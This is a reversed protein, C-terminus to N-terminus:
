EVPAMKHRHSPASPLRLHMFDLTVKERLDGWQRGATVQASPLMLYYCWSAILIIHKDSMGHVRLRVTYSVSVLYLRHVSPLYVAGLYEDTKQSCCHLVQISGNSLQSPFVPQFPHPLVPYYLSKLFLFSFRSIDLRRGYFWIKKMVVKFKTASKRAPSRLCPKGGYIEVSCLRQKYAVDM